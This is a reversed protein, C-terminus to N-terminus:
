RKKNDLNIPIPKIVFSLLVTIGICCVVYLYPHYKFYEPFLNPLAIMPIRQYIYLQFLNKGCWSLVTSSIVYKFTVTFVLFAFSVSTAIYISNYSRFHYLIVFLSTIVVLCVTYYKKFISFINNKFLSVFMGAPYALITDYWWTEKIKWLIIIYILLIVVTAFFAAHKNKFLSFSLYTSTYCCIIAFIYWNSQGISDWAIMSLLYQRVPYHIGIILNMVLFVFLAINYNILTSLIRKAPISRIYGEGKRQISEMVGYGSYFLFMVVMLQGIRKILLNSPVDLVPSFSVGMRTLVPLIHSYFVIIIFIGKIAETHEKELCSDLNEAKKLGFVVFLFLIGIIIIM